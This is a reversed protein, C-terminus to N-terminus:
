LAAGFDLDVLAAVLFELISFFRFDQQNGSDLIYLPSDRAERGRRYLHRDAGHGSSRAVEATAILTHPTDLPGAAPFRNSHSIIPLPACVSSRTLNTYPKILLLLLEVPM